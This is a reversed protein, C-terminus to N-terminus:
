RCYLDIIQHKTLHTHPNYPTHPVKHPNHPAKHLTHPTHSNHTATPTHPTDPYIPVPVSYCDTTDLDSLFNRVRDERVDEQGEERGEEVSVRRLAARRLSPPSSPTLNSSTM